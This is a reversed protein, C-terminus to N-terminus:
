SRLTYSTLSHTLSLSPPFPFLPFHFSHVNVFHFLFLCVMPFAFLPDEPDICDPFLFSSLPLSPPYPFLSIPVLSSHPLPDTAPSSHYILNGQPDTITQSSWAQSSSQYFSNPTHIECRSVYSNPSQM